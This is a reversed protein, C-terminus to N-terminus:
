MVQKLDPFMRNYEEDNKINYNRVRKTSQYQRNQKQQLARLKEKQSNTYRDSMTIALGQDQQNPSDKEQTFVEGNLQRNTVGKPVEAPYTLAMNNMRSEEPLCFQSEASSPRLVVNMSSAEIPEFGENSSGNIPEYQNLEARMSNSIEMLEANEIQLMQNTAEM